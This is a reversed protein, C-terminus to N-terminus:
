DLLVATPVLLGLNFSHRTLFSTSTDTLMIGCQYTLLIYLHKNLKIEMEIPIALTYFTDSVSAVNNLIIKEWIFMADFGAGFAIRGFDAGLKIGRIHIGYHHLKEKSVTVADYVFGVGGFAFRVSDMRLDLLGYLGLDVGVGTPTMNLQPKFQSPAAFHLVSFNMYLTAINLQDKPPLRFFAPTVYEKKIKKIPKTKIGMLTACFFDMVDLFADVNSVTEVYSAIITTTNVDLVRVTLVIKNQREILQGVVVQEANLARGMSAVKESDSWDSEQFSLEKKIKDFNSRDVINAVGLKIFSSTFLNMVFEIDEESFGKADFTAIVMVPKSAGFGSILAFVLLFCGLCLRKM